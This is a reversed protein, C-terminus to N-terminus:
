SYLLNGRGRSLNIGAYIKNDQVTCMLPPCSPLPWTTPRESKKLKKRSQCIVYMKNENTLGFNFFESENERRRWGEKREMENKKKKKEKKRSVKVSRIQAAKSGM